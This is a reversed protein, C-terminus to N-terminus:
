GQRTVICINHGLRLPVHHPQLVMSKVSCPWNALWMEPPFSHNWIGQRHQSSLEAMFKGLRNTRSFCLPPIQVPRVQPRHPHLQLFSYPGLIRVSAGIMHYWGIGIIHKTSPLVFCWCVLLHMLLKRGPLYPLRDSGSAETGSLNAKAMPPMPLLRQHWWTDADLDGWSRRAPVVYADHAIHSRGDQTWPPPERSASIFTLIHISINFISLHHNSHNPIHHFSSQHSSHQFSQHKETNWIWLRVNKTADANGTDGLADLSRSRWPHAPTEGPLRAQHGTQWCAAQFGFFSGCSCPSRNGFISSM